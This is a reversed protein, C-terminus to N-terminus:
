IHYWGDFSKLNKQGHTTKVIGNLNGLFDNIFPGTGVNGDAGQPKSQVVVKGNIGPRRKQLSFFLSVFLGPDSVNEPMM